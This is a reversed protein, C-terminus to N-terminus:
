CGDGCADWTRRRRCDGQDGDRRWRRAVRLIGDREALDVAGASGPLVPVDHAAALARAQAKDGFLELSEVSPGVFTIGEQECRRALEPSEALFGYGPHLADCGSALAAGIVAEVDLYARAGVGDLPQVQDARRVHLSNADDQSHIAVSAIRLERAARIIRIAIEGRNAVMLKDIPM